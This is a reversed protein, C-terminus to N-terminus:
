VSSPLPFTRSRGITERPHGWTAWAIGRRRRCFIPWVEWGTEQAPEHVSKMLPKVGDGLVLDRLLKGPQNLPQPLKLIRCTALLRPRLSALRLLFRLWGEHGARETQASALPCPCISSLALHDAWLALAATEELVSGLYGIESGSTNASPWFHWSCPLEPPPESPRNAGQRM